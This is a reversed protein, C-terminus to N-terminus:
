KTKRTFICKSTTTMLTFGELDQFSLGRGKGTISSHSGFVLLLTAVTGETYYDDLTRNSFAAIASAHDPCGIKTNCGLAELEEVVRKAIAGARIMEWGMGDGVVLIVNKGSPNGCLSPPIEDIVGERLM